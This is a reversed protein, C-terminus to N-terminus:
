ASIIILKRTEDKQNVTLLEYDIDYIRNSFQKAWFEMLNKYLGYYKIVDDLEYCCGTKQVWFVAAPNRKINVIKAEPFAAALLGIYRFNQPMKDTVVPNGKSLKQLQAKWRWIVTSPMKNWCAKTSWMSVM